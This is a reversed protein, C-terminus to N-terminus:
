VEEEPLEGVRLEHEDLREPRVEALAVQPLRESLVGAATPTEAAPLADGHADRAEPDSGRPFGHKRWSGGEKVRRLFRGTGGCGKWVSM